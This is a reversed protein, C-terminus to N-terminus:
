SDSPQPRPHHWGPRWPLPAGTTQRKQHRIVMPARWACRAWVEQADQRSELQQAPQRGVAPPRTQSVTATGRGRWWWMCLCVCVCVTIGTSRNCWAQACQVRLRGHQEATDSRRHRGAALQDHHRQRALASAVARVRGLRQWVGGGQRNASSSCKDAKHLHTCTNHTSPTLPPQHTCPRKHDNAPASLSDWCAGLQAAHPTASVRCESAAARNGARANIAEDDHSM